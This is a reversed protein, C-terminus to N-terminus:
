EKVITFEVRRNLKRGDDTSNDAIPFRSGLGQFELRSSEIGKNILYDAVSQARDMSLKENGGDNGVNDTYGIVLIHINAFRKMFDTLADLQEKSKPLLASKDFDFYIRELRYSNGKLSQDGSLSKAGLLQDTIKSLNATIREYDGKQVHLIKGGEPQQSKGTLLQSEAETIEQRLLDVDREDQGGREGKGIPRPLPRRSQEGDEQVNILKVL